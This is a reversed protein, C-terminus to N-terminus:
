YFALVPWGSESHPYQSQLFKCQSNTTIGRPIFPNEKSPHGTYRFRLKRAKNVVVVAGASPDAM